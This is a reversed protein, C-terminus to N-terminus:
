KRCKLFYDVIRIERIASSQPDDENRIERLVSNLTLKSIIGSKSFNGLM